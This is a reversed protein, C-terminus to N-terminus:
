KSFTGFDVGTGTLFGGLTLKLTKCLLGGIIIQLIQTFFLGHPEKCKTQFGNWM